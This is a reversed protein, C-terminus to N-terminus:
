IFKFECQSRHTAALQTYVKKLTVLKLLFTLKFQKIKCIMVHTVLKRSLITPPNM